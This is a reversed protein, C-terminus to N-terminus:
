ASVKQAEAQEYIIQGDDSVQGLRVSVVNSVGAEQMTVGYLCDAAEMTRKNHTVIIFQTNHSYKRIISLFRDINADDLPADAEDLICFPSPKVSYIAFLLALATLAKEGGSLLGLGLMKKGRPRAVVEIPSELPDTEDTLSVHAQGGEFLSSFIDQFNEQVRTFTVLFRERATKNIEDILRLLSERAGILDDRQQQLFDLREKERDYEEIALVNVPGLRRIRERLQDVLEQSAQEGKECEEENPFYPFDEELDSVDVGHNDEIQQIVLSRRASIRELEIEVQHRAEVAAEKEERLRRLEKEIEESGMRLEALAQEYQEKEENLKERAAFSEDLDSRVNSEQENLQALMNKRQEIEKELEQAEASVATYERELLSLSKEIEGLRARREALKMSLEQFMGGEQRFANERVNLEERLSEIQQELQDRDQRASNAKEIMEDREAALQQVKSDAERAQTEAAEKRSLLSKCELSVGTYGARFEGLSEDVEKLLDLRQRNENELEAIRVAEAQIQQELKGIRSSTRGIEATIEEMRRRRKLLALGSKETSGGSVAYQYITEGSLTVMHLPRKSKKQLDVATQLDEVIAVGSFLLKRLFDYKKSCEVVEDCYVLVPGDIKRNDGASGNVLDRSFFTASGTGSEKLRRIAKLMANTDSAVISQIRMGLAAEVAREYRSNTTFIEAAVGELGERSAGDTFLARVGEGYGEMEKQLRQLLEKEGRLSEQEISVRSLKEKLDDIRTRAEELRGGTEEAERARVEREQALGKLKEELKSLRDELRQHEQALRSAQEELQASRKKEYGASNELAEVKSTCTAVRHLLQERQSQASALEERAEDVIRSKEDAQNRAKEYEKESAQVATRLEEVQRSYGALEEKRREINEKLSLLKRQSEAIWERGAARKERIVTLEEEAQRIQQNFETLSNFLEEAARQRDNIRTRLEESRAAQTSEAAAAQALEGKLVNLREALPKEEVMLKELEARALTVAVRRLKESLRKYSRAKSVQRQLSNVTRQVEGVIDNIRQLDGETTELKRLAYKRRLKYKQIGAAEEFLFRREDAKDSLVEEVMRQEIMSYANSGIGTDMFLGQIDKLRCSKFNIHYNSEGSRFIQRGIVFEGTDLGMQGEPDDFNLCVEAMGLPKRQVTGNFIVEEMRAGRLTRINQEGLVWRMAEIVNTKGCGNPGVISTIGKPFELKVRNAFSKFGSIEISKLDMCGSISRTLFHYFIFICNGYM